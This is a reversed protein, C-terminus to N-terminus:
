ILEPLSLQGRSWDARMYGRWGFSAKRRQRPPGPGNGWQQRAASKTTQAEAALLRVVEATRRREGERIQPLRDNLKVKM